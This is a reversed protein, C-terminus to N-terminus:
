SPDWVAAPIEAFKAAVLPYHQLTTAIEVAWTTALADYFDTTDIEADRCAAGLADLDHPRAGYGFVEIAVGLRGRNHNERLAYTAARLWDALRMVDAQYIRDTLTVPEAASEPAPEVAAAGVSMEARPLTAVAAALQEPSPKRQRPLRNV